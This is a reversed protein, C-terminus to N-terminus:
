HDDTLPQPLGEWLDDAPIVARLQTEPVKINRDQFKAGPEPSILWSNTGLRQLVKHPGTSLLKSADQRYKRYVLLGESIKSPRAHDQYDASAKCYEKEIAADHIARFDLKDRSRSTGRFFRNFDDVPSQMFMYEFPSVGTRSHPRFNHTKTAADLAQEFALTTWDSSKQLFYSELSERLERITREVAGQARHSYALGFTLQIGHRHAWAHIRTATFQRGLDTHIRKPLGYKLIHRRILIIYTDATLSTVAETSLWGSRVDRFLAVHTSPGDSLKFPGAYDVEYTHHMAPVTLGISSLTGVTNTETQKVKCCIHCANVFTICDEHCNPWWVISRLRKYTATIGLHTGSPTSGTIEDPVNSLHALMLMGNRITVSTDPLLVSTSAKAPIYFSVDGDRTTFTLLGQHDLNFPARARLLKRSVPPTLASGPLLATREASLAVATSPSAADASPVLPVVVATSPVTDSPAISLLYRRIDSIPVDHYSTGDADYGSIIDRALQLDASTQPDADATIANFEIPDVVKRKELVRALLDAIRPLSTRPMWIHHHIEEQLRFYDPLIAGGLQTDFERLATESNANDCVLFTQGALFPLFTKVTYIQGCRERMTSSRYLDITLKWCGGCLQVPLIICHEPATFGPTARLAALLPTFDDIFCLSDAPPTTACPLVYFLFGSYSSVNADVIIVSAIPQNIPTQAFYLSPLGNAVYDSLLFLSDKIRSCEADPLVYSADREMATCADYLIQLQEYHDGILFGKFFQFTGCMSRFWKLINRRDKLNSQFQEWAEDAFAAHMKRRTPSPRNGHVSFEIGCFVVAACPGVSKKHNIVFGYRCLQERLVRNGIHYTPEDIAATLFDDTNNGFALRRSSILAATCSDKYVQDLVFGIACRFALSSMYFGQPITTMVFFRPKGANADFMRFGFLRHLSPHLLVCQFGGTIDDCGFVTMGFPMERAAQLGSAQQQKPCVLNSPRHLRNAPVGFIRHQDDQIFRLDNMLTCDLTIRFRSNVEDITLEPPISSRVGPKAKKDVCIINHEVTIDAETVERCHGKRCTEEIVILARRTYNSSRVLAKSRIPDIHIHELMPLRVMLRQCGPDATPVVDVTATAPFTLPPGDPVELNYFLAPQTTRETKFPRLIGLTVLAEHGFFVRAPIGDSIVFAFTGSVDDPTTAHLTVIQNVSFTGRLGGSYVIPPSFTHIDSPGIVKLELLTNVCTVHCLNGMAGSDYCTPLTHSRYAQGASRYEVQALPLAQM